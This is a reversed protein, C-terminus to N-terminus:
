NGFRDRLRERLHGRGGGGGQGDADLIRDVVEDLHEKAKAAREETLKGDAVAQDLRETIAGTIADDVAQRDVGAAEAQAAISTGGELGAKVDDPTSGIADAVVQLLEARRDARREKRDARGQEVEDKTASLVADAQEQTLTGDAVLRDLARPLPGERDAVPATSAETGDQAGAVGLPNTAAVALGGVGIAAAMGVAAIRKGM